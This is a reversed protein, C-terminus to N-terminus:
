GRNRNLRKAVQRREWDPGFFGFLSVLEFVAVGHSIVGIGWGLMPWFFWLHDPWMVLNAVTLIAMVIVYMVLHTYFGKIDRVHELVEREHESVDQQQYMNTETALSAVDLDFAAALANMTELSAAGGREIRQITRVSLGSIEALTEQSWGRELRLKRIRM